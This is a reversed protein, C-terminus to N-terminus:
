KENKKEKFKINKQIVDLKRVADSLIGQYVVIFSLDDEDVHQLLIDDDIYLYTNETRMYQDIINFLLNRAEQCLEKKNMKSAGKTM